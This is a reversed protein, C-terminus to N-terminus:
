RGFPQDVPSSGAPVLALVRLPSGSGDVIKLPAAIIIAGKPPLQDLNTLSALGYRNQAHMFHHAPFQPDFGGAQGADTGVQEVGFGRTTRQEALLRMAEVDPGPCRGNNLFAESGRRKSWDTRMLVISGDEIRGHHSEFEAIDDVSLLYEDDVAAKASVDIVCAPAIFNEVAITAPSGSSYERGTIWHNPADFHTGCHEGMVLMNWAWAPGDADFHSIPTMSFGPSSKGVEPPLSIVPTQPSLPQTLDVVRIAGAGIMGILGSLLEPATTMPEINRVPVELTPHQRGSPLRADSFDSIAERFGVDVCM